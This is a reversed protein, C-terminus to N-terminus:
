TLIHIQLRHLINERQTTPTDVAGLTAFYGEITHTNNEDFKDLCSDIYDISFSERKKFLNDIRKEYDEELEKRKKAPAVDKKIASPIVSWNGFMKQSIDTLQLDNRLFIGKTDYEALSGLLEKLINDGM